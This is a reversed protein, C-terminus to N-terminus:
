PSRPQRIPWILTLGAGVMEALLGSIRYLAVSNLLPGVSFTSELLLLIVSEFVGLGGPAGPVILGLVWAVSFGSLVGPLDTWSWPAVAALVLCFGIGRLLVFLLEALLPILPYSQLRPAVQELDQAPSPDSTDQKSSSRVKKQILNTLVPIVRNLAQPRIALLLITLGLVQFIWLQQDPVLLIVLLAATAMLIPELGVSLAAIGLPIGLQTSAQIRGYFHWINGPLYKALNTRLYIRLSWGPPPQCGLLTLILGWAWGSCLHALAMSGFSGLVLAWGPPSISIGFVEQSHARLTLGLFVVTLVPIGRGLWLKVRSIVSRNSGKSGEPSGEPSGGM